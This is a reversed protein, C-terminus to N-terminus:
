AVGAQGVVDGWEVRVQGRVEGVALYGLSPATGPLPGAGGARVRVPFQLREPESTHLITIGVPHKSRKAEILNGLAASM